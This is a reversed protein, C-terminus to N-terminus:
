KLLNRNYIVFFTIEEKTITDERILSIGDIGNKVMLELFMNANQHFFVDAWINMLQDVANTGSLITQILLKKGISFNEDWNSVAIEMKEKDVGKLIKDMQSFSFLPSKETILNANNLITKTINSGYLRAVREQAAFYIGPGLAASSGLDKGLVKVGHEPDFNQLDVPEPDGRYMEQSTRVFGNPFIKM